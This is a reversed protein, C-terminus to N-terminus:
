RPKWRVWQTCLQQTLRTRLHRLVDTQPVRQVIQASRHADFSLVCNPSCYDAAVALVALEVM